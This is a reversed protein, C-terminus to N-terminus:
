LYKNCFWFLTTVSMAYTISLGATGSDLRDRSYVAFCAAFLTVLNGILELRASIWRAAYIDVYSYILNEDVKRKM